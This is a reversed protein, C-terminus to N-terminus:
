DDDGRLFPVPVIEDNVACALLILAGGAADEAARKGKGDGDEGLGRDLSAASSPKRRMTTMNM